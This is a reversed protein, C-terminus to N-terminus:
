NFISNIAMSVCMMTTIEVAVVSTIANSVVASNVASSYVQDNGDSLIEAILVAAFMLRGRKVLPWRAFETDDKLIEETEAILDVLEDKGTDLDALTSLASLEYYNGYQADYKKLATFLEAVKDCKAKLDGGSIGLLESLGRIANADAKIKLDKKLYVYCEEIENVATDTDKGTMALLVAFAIDSEDSLLPHRRSLKDVIEEMRVAIKGAESVRGHDVVMMSSLVMCNYGVARKGKLTKYVGLVEDIYREPDNRMSMKTLVALEVTTRFSSSIGAKSALIKGAEKMKKIDARCDANTLIHGSVLCNLGYEYVFADGVSRSNQVFLDIRTKLDTDM